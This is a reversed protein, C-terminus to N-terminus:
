CVKYNYFRQCYHVAILQSKVCPFAYDYAFVYVRVFAAPGGDEFAEISKGRSKIKWKSSRFEVKKSISM